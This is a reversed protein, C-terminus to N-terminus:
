RVGIVTKVFTIIGKAMLIIVLGILAYIIMNKAQSVKQPDGGATVFFYGAIIIVLPVIVFSIVILGNIVAEILESFSEWKLPNDVRIEGGTTMLRPTVEAIAENKAFVALNQFSVLLLFCASFSVLLLYTLNERMINIKDM